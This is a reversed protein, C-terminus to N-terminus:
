VNSASIQISMGSHDQITGGQKSDLSSNWPSIALEFAAEEKSSRSWQESKINVHIQLFSLLVPLKGYFLLLIFRIKSVHFIHSMCGLSTTHIGEPKSYQLRDNQTNVRIIM